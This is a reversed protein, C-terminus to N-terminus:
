YLYRIRECLLRCTRLYAHHIPFMLVAELSSWTMYPLESYRPAGSRGSIFSSSTSELISNWILLCGELRFIASSKLPRLQSLFTVHYTMQRTYFLILHAIRFCSIASDFFIFRNLANNALALKRIYLLAPWVWYKTPPIAYTRGTILNILWCKGLYLESSNWQIM